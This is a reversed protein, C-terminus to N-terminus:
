TYELFAAQNDIIWKGNLRFAFYYGNEVLRNNRLNGCFIAKDENGVTVSVGAGEEETFDVKCILCKYVKNNGVPFTVDEVVKVLIVPNQIINSM